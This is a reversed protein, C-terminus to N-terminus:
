IQDPKPVDYVKTLRQGRFTELAHCAGHDFSTLVSHKRGPGPHVVGAEEEALVAPVPPQAAQGPGHLLRGGPLIIM